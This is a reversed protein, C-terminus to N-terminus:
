SGRGKLAEKIRQMGPVVRTFAYYIAPRYVMDIEGIYETVGDKRCFGEKFQYLGDSRDLSYVAGFDYKKVGEQLGWKIMEWQILENPRTERKVNGSAGYVYTIKNGYLAPIAGALRDGEHEAIYIRTQEPYAYVLNKIYSYPRRGILNRETTTKYLDYFVDLAEDFGEAGPERYYVGVGSQLAQEINRKKSRSFKKFLSEEDYGELHLVMNLRPQILENKDYGRNRVRYGCALYKEELEGDYTVEPDFRLLFARCDGAVERMEAVLENVLDIDYLDCSPGKAAYILAYSGIVRRTVVSMAAVIRGEKEVYVQRDDWGEKVRAWNMDQQIATTYPSNRVFYNYRAVEEPNAKNLVPM